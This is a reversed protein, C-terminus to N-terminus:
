EYGNPPPYFSINPLSRPATVRAEYNMDSKPNPSLLFNKPYYSITDKMPDSIPPFYEAKNAFRTYVEPRNTRFDPPLEKSM